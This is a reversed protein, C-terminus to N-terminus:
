GRAMADVAAVATIEDGARRLKEVDAPTGDAKVRMPGDDWGLRKAPLVTCVLVAKALNTAARGSARRAGRTGSCMVPM